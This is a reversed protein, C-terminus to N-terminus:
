YKCALPGSLLVRLLDFLQSFYKPFCPAMSAVTLTGSAVLEKWILVFGVEYTRSFGLPSSKSKWRGSMGM